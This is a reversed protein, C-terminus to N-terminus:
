SCTSYWNKRLIFRMKLISSSFILSNVFKSTSVRTLIINANFILIPSPRRWSYTLLSERFKRMNWIKLSQAFASTLNFVLLCMLFYVDCSPLSFTTMLVLGWLNRPFLVRPIRVGRFLASGSTSIPQQFSILLQIAM